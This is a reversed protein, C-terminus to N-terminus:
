PVGHTLSSLDIQSSNSSFEKAFVEKVNDHIFLNRRNTEMRILSALRYCLIGHIIYIEIKPAKEASFFHVNYVPLYPITYHKM